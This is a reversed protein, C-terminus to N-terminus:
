AVVEDSGRSVRPAVNGSAACHQYRTIKVHGELCIVLMDPRASQLSVSSRRDASKALVVGALPRRCRSRLSVLLVCALSSHRVSLSHQLDLPFDASETAPLPIVVAGCSTSGSDAASAHGFPFPSSSHLSPIMSDRNEFGLM